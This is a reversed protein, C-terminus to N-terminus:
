GKKSEVTSVLIELIESQGGPQAKPRQRDQVFTITAFHAGFFLVLVASFRLDFISFSIPGARGRVPHPINRGSGTAFSRSTDSQKPVVDRAIVTRRKHPSYLANGGEGKKRRRSRAPPRPVVARPVPWAPPFSPTAQFSILFNFVKSRVRFDFTWFRDEVKGM